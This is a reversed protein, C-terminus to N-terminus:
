PWRSSKETEDNITLMSVDRRLLKLHSLKLKDIEVKGYLVSEVGNSKCGRM